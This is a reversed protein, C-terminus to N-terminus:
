SLSLLKDVEVMRKGIWESVKTCVANGLMKYRQTDSIEEGDKGYKTWDDPFGQLRECELPTLRRIGYKQTFSLPVQNSGSNAGKLTPSIEKALGLSGAKASQGGLFAIAPSGGEGGGPNLAPSIDEMENMETRRHEFAIVQNSTGDLTEPKPSRKVNNQNAGTHATQIIFTEHDPGIGDRRKQQLTNSIEPLVYLGTKAGMGGGEGQLTASVESHMRIRDATRGFDVVSEGAGRSNGEGKKRSPATDWDCSEPEFLVKVPGALDSSHGVIFVRRRRQAVGYYQADLVRSAWWYGLKALRGCLIGMDRKEGSSLLGPVNEILLWRPKVEEIIRAFEWWLASRSGGLGARHGAV